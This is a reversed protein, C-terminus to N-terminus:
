QPGALIGLSETTSALLSSIGLRAWLKSFGPWLPVKYLAPRAPLIISIVILNLSSVPLIPYFSLKICSLWWGWSFFFTLFFCSVALDVDFALILHPEVCAVAGPFNWGCAWAAQSVWEVSLERQFQSVRKKHRQNWSEGEWERETGCLKMWFRNALQWNHNCYPM